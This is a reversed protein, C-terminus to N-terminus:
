KAKLVLANSVTVERTRTPNAPDYGSPLNVLEGNVVLQTSSGGDLNMAEVAGLQGFLAATEPITLGVSAVQRGDAVLFLWNGEEDWGVATRPGRAIVDPRFEEAAETTKVQSNEVLRPGAGIIQPFPDFVAPQASVKWSATQSQRLTEIATGRALVLFGQRPIEIEDPLENPARLIRQGGSFEAVEDGEKRKYKAGFRPTLVCFGDVLPAHTGALAFGNLAANEIRKEGNALTLALGCSGALPGIQAEDDNWGLATRSKWPLRHWEGNVKVAGVAAGGYAFFGGNVAVRAGSKAALTRVSRKKVVDGADAVELGLNWQTRDAKVLWYRLPGSPTQTSVSLLSIGRSIEKIERTEQARLRSFLAGGGVFLTAAAISLMWFSRRRGTFRM